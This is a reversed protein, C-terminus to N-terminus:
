RADRREKVAKAAADIEARSLQGDRNADALDFASTPGDVFEAGSIRGDRDSDFRGILEDLRQSVNQRARLRRPFDETDIFGDGNRDYKSFNNARAALFEARTVVGDGNADAAGFLQTPDLREKARSAVCASLLAVFVM